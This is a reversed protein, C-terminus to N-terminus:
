FQEFKQQAIFIPYTKLGGGRVLLMIEFVERKSYCVSIGEIQERITKHHTRMAVCAAVQVDLM